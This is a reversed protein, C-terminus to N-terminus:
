LRRVCISSFCYLEMFCGFFIRVKYVIKFRNSGSDHIAESEELVFPTTLRYIGGRLYVVIDGTMNKNVTRVLDRVGNLSSPAEKSALNGSGDPSAYYTAQIPTANLNFVALLVIGITAVIPNKLPFKFSVMLKM